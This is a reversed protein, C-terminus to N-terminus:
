ILQLLEWIGTAIEAVLQYDVMNPADKTTHTVDQSEINELFWQSAVAIAPCGNQLFLSHDSQYWPMGEVFRTHSSLFRRLKHLTEDPLNMPSFATSANRYGACDVNINLKIDTFKGENQRLYLMQGPVAYCDEGNLALLEICREGDYAQLLEALLLLVVVGVGNDLAGPTGQKADIHASIVVRHNLDRGKRGLINYNVAHGRIAGSYLHVTKDVCALLRKGEVDKMFVSPISFDGDEILPFPYVGGAM